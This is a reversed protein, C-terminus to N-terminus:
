VQSQPTFSKPDPLSLNRHDPGRIRKGTASLTQRIRTTLREKTQQQILEINTQRISSASSIARDRVPSMSGYSDM